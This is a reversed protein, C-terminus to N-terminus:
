GNVKKPAGTGLSARNPHLEVYRSVLDPAHKRLLKKLDVIGAKLNQEIRSTVIEERTMAPYLKRAAKGLSM